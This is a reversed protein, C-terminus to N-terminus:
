NGFRFTSYSKVVEERKEPTMEDTSLSYTLIVMSSSGPIILQINHIDIGKISFKNEFYGCSTNNVTILKTTVMEFNDLNMSEYQSKMSSKFVEFTSENLVMGSMGQMCIINLNSGFNTVNTLDMFIVDVQNSNIMSKLHDPLVQKGQKLTSEKDVKEWDAPPIVSYGKASNIYRGEEDMAPTTATASAADTPIAAENVAIEPVEYTEEKDSSKSILYYTGAAVGVVFLFMVFATLKDKM